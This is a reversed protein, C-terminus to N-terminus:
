IAEFRSYDQVMVFTKDKLVLRTEARVPISMTTGFLRQPRFDVRYEYSRCGKPLKIQSAVFRVLQFSEADIWVRGRQRLPVQKGMLMIKGASIQPVTEFGFVLCERGAIQESPLKEFDNTLRNEFSFTGLWDGTFPQDMLPVQPLQTVELTPTRSESFILKENVRKDPLRRVSFSHTSEEHRSKRTKHDLEEVVIREQCRFTKISLQDMAVQESLRTLALMNDEFGAFEDGDTKQAHTWSGCCLALVLFILLAKQPKTM